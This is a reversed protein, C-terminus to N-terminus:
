THATWVGELFDIGLSMAELCGRCGVGGSLQVRDLFYTWEASVGGWESSSPLGLSGKICSLGESQCGLRRERSIM